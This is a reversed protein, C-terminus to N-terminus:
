KKILKIAYKLNLPVIIIGLVFGLISIIDYSMHYIHFAYITYGCLPLCVISTILSPVYGKFILSQGVHMVLHLTFAIFSGFWLTQFPIFETYALSCIILCLIYEELVSLAYGRSTCGDYKVLFEPSREALFTKNQRVWQPFGIIEELEHLAFLVPFLLIYVEKMM